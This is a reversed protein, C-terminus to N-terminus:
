STEFRPPRGQLVALVGERADASAIAQSWLRAELSLGAELSMDLGRAVAAKALRVALPSRGLINRAMEQATALLHPRPVVRNVLGLHLAEDASIRDGNMVMEMAKGPPIHRPLTQTGGASPIMGLNVEPLGFLADQSAVRLDCCLSLELGAGLAYGHIAAILPKEQALFLGWLDRQWRSRRAIVYSPASGFESIDAGACFAREGAGQFVAVRVEPDDAVAQLAVYLDDRMQISLANLVRPRNLTIYVIPGDKEYLITQFPTM